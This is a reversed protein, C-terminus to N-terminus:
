CGFVWCIWRRIPNGANAPGTVVMVDTLVPLGSDIISWPQDATSFAHEVARWVAAVTMVVTGEPLDVPDDSDPGAVVPLMGYAQDVWAQLAPTADVVLCRRAPAGPAPAPNLDDDPM